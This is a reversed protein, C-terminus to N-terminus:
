VGLGRQRARVTPARRILVASDRFREVRLGSIEAAGPGGAAIARVQDVDEVSYARGPNATELARRAIRRELAPLSSRLASVDVSVEHEGTPRIATAAVKDVMDELAAEDTRAVDALRALARTVSPNFHLALYPLLEHRVRNRPNALDANTEDERWLEGKAALFDRLERRSIALLPRILHARRPAIGSLGRGGAGRVIRLLVTEALDDETHATAVVDAGRAQLVESYLRQRARRAAVEISTRETRSLAPVDLRSVVFDIGLRACLERCFSEDQDSQAGRIAHNLHVAADLIIENSTHLERLLLLLAVSDGGGSLACIVRTDRQWLDHRRAFECVRDLPQL